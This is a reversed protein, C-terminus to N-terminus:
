FFQLCDLTMEIIRKKSSIYAAVPTHFYKMVTPAIVVEEILQEDRNSELICDKVRRSFETFGFLDITIASEVQERMIEDCALVAEQQRKLTDSHRYSLRKIIKCSSYFNKFCDIQTQNFTEESKSDSEFFKVALDVNSESCFTRGTENLQKFFESLHSGFRRRGIRSIEQNAVSFVIEDVNFESFLDDLCARLKWLSKNGGIFNVTMERFECDNDVRLVTAIGECSNNSSSKVLRRKFYNYGIAKFFVDSVRHRKLLSVLCERRTESPILKGATEYFSEDLTAIYSSCHNMRKAAKEKLSINFNYHNNLYEGICNADYDRYDSLDSILFGGVGVSAFTFAILNFHFAVM